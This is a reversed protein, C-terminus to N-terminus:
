SEMYGAKKKQDNRGAQNQQKSLWNNAFKKMGSMTKGNTPNSVLWAKMRMLESMVDVAPYAEKWVQFLDNHIKYDGSDKTPLDFVLPTFNVKEEQKPKGRDTFRIGEYPVILLHGSPLEVVCKM